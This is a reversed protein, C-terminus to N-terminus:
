RGSNLKDKVYDVNIMDGPTIRRSDNWEKMDVPTGTSLIPNIQSRKETVCIPPHPPVPFWKEPPLYSYGYEYLKSDEPTVPLINYDTYQVESPMVDAGSRTPGTEYKRNVKYTYSDFGNEDVTKAVCNKCEGPKMISADDIVPKAEPSPTPKPMQIPVQIPTPKQSVNGELKETGCLSAKTFVNEVIIYLAFLVISLVVIDKIAMSTNPIVKLLAVIGSFIIIYRILKPTNFLDSIKM